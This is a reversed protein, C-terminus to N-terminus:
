KVSEGTKSVIQATAGLYSFDSDKALGDFVSKSLIPVKIFGSAKYDTPPTGNKWRLTIYRAGIGYERKSKNVQATPMNATLAGTPAVNVTTITEPQIRIPIIRGDDM